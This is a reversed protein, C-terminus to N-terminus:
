SHVLADLEEIESRCRDKTAKILKDYNTKIKKISKSRNGAQKAEQIAAKKERKYQKIEQKLRQEIESKENQVGASIDIQARELSKQLLLLGQIKEATIPGTDGPAFEQSLQSAEKKQM